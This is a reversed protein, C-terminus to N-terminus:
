ELITVCINSYNGESVRKDKIEFNNGEYSVVVFCVAVAVIIFNILSVVTFIM